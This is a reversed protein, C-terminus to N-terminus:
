YSDALKNLKDSEEKSINLSYEMIIGSVFRGFPNSSSIKLHNWRGTRDLEIMLKIFEINDLKEYKKDLNNIKVYDKRLKELAARATKYDHAKYEPMTEKRKEQSEIERKWAQILKFEQEYIKLLYQKQETKM